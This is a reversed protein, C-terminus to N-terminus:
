AVEWNSVFMLNYTSIVTCRVLKRDATGIIVLTSATFPNGTRNIVMWAEALSGYYLEYDPFNM